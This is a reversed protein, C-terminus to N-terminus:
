KIEIDNKLKIDRSSAGIEIRYEGKELQWDKIAENYWKLDDKNMKIEVKAEKGPELSIKEFGKLERPPRLAEKGPASIYLQAIEAGQRTGTNQITFTVKVEKKNQKVKLDSYAFTTYSLGHGFPFAPKLGKADFWRYGVLIDEEYRLPKEKGHYNGLAHAPSQELSEPLTFPMKGSPNVNGFIVDALANGGEMGNFWSWVIVPTTMEIKRFDIPSGATIVVITNPNVKSVVNILDEQSYPLNMDKKDYSETDFDHNLGAFIIAVDSQLAIKVAARLLSDANYKPALVRTGDENTHSTVKEYGLSYNITINEGALNTIGDFPTIEYKSKVGSSFGGESHKRMANDGFVAITKISDRNLPLIDKENKLLVISEKAVDYAVKSHSPTVFEGSKRKLTDGMQRTNFLTWLIHSVKKDIVQMSVEGKEVAKVLPDAFYFENFPGRTGMELDLGANAAKVTSHTGGWDSMLIGKFGWENRLIDTLIHHNEGCWDGRFKNYSSMATLVNGRQVAAKFGPLYIERLARESSYVDVTGRDLEQNNLAFHKVCAAVDNTQIGQIYPVVMESTLLPDESLYEFNRGGLPTRIINVGPGLMVDKGRARFESGLAEGQRFALNRNWTAAVATETPFYSSSDTTWGASRFSTLSIEERVGHPGDSLKLQPIGLRECGGNTFMTNGHLLNVKEQLTMQSVLASIKKDLASDKHKNGGAFATSFLVILAFSLLLNKTRIMTNQM